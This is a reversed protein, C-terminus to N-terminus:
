NTFLLDGSVFTERPWFSGEYFGFKNFFHVPVGHRMLYALAGSRITVRGHAYISYIKEIPLVKRIVENDENKYTFYITNQKMQMIGNKLIFFNVKSM